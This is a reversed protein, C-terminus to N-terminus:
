IKKSMKVTSKSDEKYDNRYEVVGIECGPGIKVRNGRVVEARTNELYIEDGEIVSASLSGVQGVFPILSNRKRKVTIRGGGIEGAKSEAFRLAIDITDANLLGQIEFGGSSNFLEFEVDGKVSIGGKITAEHGSLHEGAELTGIVTMKKLQAKRGVTMTGIITTEEAQFNGKIEAEGLIKVSRAAANGEMLSTGYVHYTQCEVDNVVTGEGRVSIKDYHGGPYSGSGNIILHNKM